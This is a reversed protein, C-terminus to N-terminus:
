NYDNWMNKKRNVKLDLNVVLIALKHTFKAGINQLVGKQFKEIVNGAPRARNERWILIQMTNIITM